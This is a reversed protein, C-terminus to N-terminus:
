YSLKARIWDGTGLEMPLNPLASNQVDVAVYLFSMAAVAIDPFPLKKQHASHLFSIPPWGITSAVSGLASSFIIQSVKRRNLPKSLGATITVSRRSTDSRYLFRICMATERAKLRRRITPTSVSILFSEMRAPSM